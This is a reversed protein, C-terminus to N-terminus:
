KAEPKNILYVLYEGEPTQSWWNEHKELEVQAADALTIYPNQRMMEALIKDIRATLQIGYKLQASTYKLATM